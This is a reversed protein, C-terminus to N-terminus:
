PEWRGPNAFFLAASARRVPDEALLANLEELQIETVRRIRQAAPVVIRGGGMTMVPSECRIVFPQNWITAAPTQLFLQAFCQEGPKLADRDLLHMRALIEATGVHLRVRTRTKLPRPFSELLRVQVTLLRSAELHGPSALEHGRTVQDHQVGALNIAARQGRHVQDTTRDHNQLGRVRVEIHGPEIVLTDGLKAQGSAVSGTVVTGHGPVSFTRDIAMRFPTADTLPPLHEYAVAAAQALAARLEDLGAGTTASTQVIPAQELFTGAVVDRVEAAVL